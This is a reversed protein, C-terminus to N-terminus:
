QGGGGSTFVRSAWRSLLTLFRVFLATLPVPSAGRSSWLVCGCVSVYCHEGGTTCCGTRSGPQYGLRNPPVEKSWRPTKM